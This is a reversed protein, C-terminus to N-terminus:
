GLQDAYSFGNELAKAVPLIGKAVGEIGKIAEGRARIKSLNIAVGGGIKSLQKATSDIYNISNLSDDTELLFCSVMEGRRSRGANLFTPTAPQYRQEIMSVALSKAAEINGRSLYLSVIIIRDEYTELYTKKDNSKLSYDRFFKSIAMFSDFEFSYSYILTTLEEIEEISYEELLQSYYFDNDLMYDIFEKVTPFRKLNPTIEEEMYAVIAEKDSELNFFGNEKRMNVKNNLEIFSM